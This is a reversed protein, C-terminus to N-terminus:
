SVSTWRLDTTLAAHKLFRLIKNHKPCSTRGGKLLHKCRIRFEDIWPSKSRSLMQRCLASEHQPAKQRETRMKLEEGSVHDQCEDQLAHMKCHLQDDYEKQLNSKLRELAVLTWRIFDGPQSRARQLFSQAEQRALQWKHQVTDVALAQNQLTQKERTARNSPVCNIRIQSKPM